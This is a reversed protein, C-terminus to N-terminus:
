AQHAARRARLLTFLGAAVVIVAGVIVNMRLPENFVGFGIIAIFVLQLYSFPQLASAEAMEYALILLWHASAACVCLLLLWIWDAPLLPQWYWIGILTIAIAGSIGTWFFSVVSTDYRAVYRTLLLYTAYMAASILPLVAWPSFVTVGPNLIVLIGLFGIGVAAWRRWGVKEGLIPGSLASVLLPSCAFVAHTEILGLKVFAFVVIVVEGVLLLGRLLQTWPKKSRIAHKLGGTSRAAIVTVFVAMFWYRLMVVLFPSYAGGLHRSIGDQIAFILAVLCTMLIAAVPPNTPAKGPNAPPPVQIPTTPLDVPQPPLRNM